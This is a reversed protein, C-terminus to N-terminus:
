LWRALVQQVAGYSVDALARAQAFKEREMRWPIDGLAREVYTLLEEANRGHGCTESFAVREIAGDGGVVLVRALLADGAVQGPVASRDMQLVVAHQGLLRLYDPYSLPGQVERLLGEKAAARLRNRWSGPPSETRVMTVGMRLRLAVDLAMELALAHQRSPVSFERTGLFIGKRQEAPQSFDWAPFDVPYPTPIFVAQRAGAARYLPVLDPISAIAGDAQRCVEGFLERVGRRDLQQAVQFLGSEKWSVFVRHGQRRLMKLADLAPRLDRRLLLLVPAAVPLTKAERHFAGATCAAYAHYNVPAHVRPDPVGPGGAFDQWADRGGPNFVALRPVPATAAGESTSEVRDPPMFKGFLNM